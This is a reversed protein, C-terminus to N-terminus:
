EGPAEPALGSDVAQTESVDLLALTRHVRDLRDAQVVWDVGIGNVKSRLGFRSTLPKPEM